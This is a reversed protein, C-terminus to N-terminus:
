VLLFNTFIVMYESLVLQHQTGLILVKKSMILLKSFWFFFNVMGTLSWRGSRYRLIFGLVTSSLM